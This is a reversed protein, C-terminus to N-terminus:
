ARAGLESDSDILVLTADMVCDGRRYQRFAVRPWLALGYSPNLGKAFGMLWARRHHHTEGDSRGSPLSRGSGSARGM